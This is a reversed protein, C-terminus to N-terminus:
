GDLLRALRAKLEPIKAAEGIAHELQTRVLCLECWYTVPGPCGVVEVTGPREKCHCCTGGMKPEEYHTTTVAGDSSTTTWEM